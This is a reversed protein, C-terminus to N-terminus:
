ESAIALDINPKLESQIIEFFQYITRLEQEETPLIRLTEEDGRIKFSTNTNGDYVTGSLFVSGEETYYDFITYNYEDSDNVATKFGSVEEHTLPEDPFSITAPESARVSFLESLEATTAEAEEHASRIQLSKEIAGRLIQHLQGPDGRKLKVQGRTDIRYKLDGRDIVLNSPYVGFQENLAQLRDYGNSGYHNFTEDPSKAIFETIVDRGDDAGEYMTEALTFLATPRIYLYTLDAANDLFKGIGDDIEKTKSQNTYFQFYREDTNFGVYGMATRDFVYDLELQVITGLEGSRVWGHSEFEALVEQKTGEYVGYIISLDGDGGDEWVEAVANRFDELSSYSEEPLEFLERSTLQNAAM